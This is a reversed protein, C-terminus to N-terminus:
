DGERRRFAADWVGSDLLGMCSHIADPTKGCSESEKCHRCFLKEFQDQDLYYVSKGSLDVKEGSM